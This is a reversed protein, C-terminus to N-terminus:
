SQHELKEIHFHEESQSQGNGKIHEICFSQSHSGGTSVRVKVESVPLLKKAQLQLANLERGVKQIQLDVHQLKQEHQNVKKAFDISEEYTLEEKGATPKEHQLQNKQQDLAALAQQHELIKQAKEALLHEIQKVDEMMHRYM